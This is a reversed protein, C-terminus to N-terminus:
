IFEYISCPALEVYHSYYSSMLENSRLVGIGKKGEGTTRRMMLIPLSVGTTPTVVLTRILKLLFVCNQHM